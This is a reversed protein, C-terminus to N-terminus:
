LIDQVQSFTIGQQPVSDFFHWTNYMTVTVGVKQIFQLMSAYVIQSHNALPEISWLFISALGVSFIIYYMHIM